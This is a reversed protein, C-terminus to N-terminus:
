IHDINIFRYEKDGYLYTGVYIDEYMLGNILYVITVKNTVFIEGTEQHRALFHDDGIKEIIEYIGYADAEDIQPSSHLYPEIFFKDGVHCEIQEAPMFLLLADSYAQDVQSLIEQYNYGEKLLDVIAKQLNNM